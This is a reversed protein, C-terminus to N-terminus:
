LGGQQRDNARSESARAISRPGQCNRAVRGSAESRVRVGVRYRKTKQLKRYGARNDTQLENQVGVGVYWREARLFDQLGVRWVGRSGM